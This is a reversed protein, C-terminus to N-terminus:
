SQSNDESKIEDNKNEMSKIKNIIKNLEKEDKRLVLGTLTNKPHSKLLETNNININIKGMIRYEKKGKQFYFAGPCQFPM